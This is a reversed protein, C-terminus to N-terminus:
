SLRVLVARVLPAGQWAVLTTLLAAIAVGSGLVLLIETALVGWLRGRSAGIKVMTEIERRRLRLSLAFVLGALVLTTLGVIVLTATVLSQVTFVAALLDAVVSRPEVLQLLRNSQYRGLLLAQSKADKPQVIVATIPFTEPDGHFHFSEINADTIQQFQQVSANAVIKDDTRELVGSAAEPESLDQHGHGLGEIIWATKVDVFVAQDDPSDSPALIGTVRMRLPYVGALGFVTEPSSTLEDGPKLGRRRALEAGLVCDGLRGFNRGRGVVLRRFAFYDLTTGVIPADGATFRTYLPIAQCLGTERLQRVQAMSVPQPPDGAFYLSNLALELPSDKAGLLLPTAAARATLEADARLVLVRLAAPIFLILAIAAVLVLTKMRQYAVYRWALYLVHSM